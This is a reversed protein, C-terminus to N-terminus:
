RATALQPARLEVPEAGKGAEVRMFLYHRSDLREDFTFRVRRMRGDETLSEVTARFTGVDFEQGVAVPEGTTYLQDFLSFLFPGERPEITIADPGVVEVRADPPLFSLAYYHVKELELAGDLRATVSLSANEYLHRAGGDVHPLAGHLYLHCLATTEPPGYNLFFVRLGGDAVHDYDIARALSKTLNEYHAQFGNVVLISAQVLAPGVVFHIGVLGVFAVKAVRARGRRRWAEELLRGAIYAFGISPLFLLRPDPFRTTAIAQGAFTWFAFFWVAPERRLWKWVLWWTAATLALAAAGVLPHGLLPEEGLIQLPVGTALMAANHVASELFQLVWRHPARFPDLYYMSRAGHGGAVYIAAYAATLATLLGVLPWLRELFPRGRERFAFAHGLMLVPIVFSTEKSLLALVYFAATTGARGIRGTERFRLYELFSLIAFSTAVLENRNSLWQVNVAHAGSFAFATVAFLLTARRIPTRSLRRGPEQGGVRELLRFVLWITLGYWLLSHLHAVVANRGFLSFDLYHTFSPIPRLFDIRLDLSTWWPVIGHHRLVGVEDGNQILGFLNGSERYMEPFEDLALLHFFDDTMYGGRLANGHFLLAALVVVGIAVPLAITRGLGFTYPREAVREGGLTLLLSLRQRAWRTM